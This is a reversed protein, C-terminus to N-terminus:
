TLRQELNSFYQCVISQFKFVTFATVFAFMLSDPKSTGAPVTGSVSMAPDEILPGAPTHFHIHACYFHTGYRVGSRLREVWPRLVDSRLEKQRAVCIM